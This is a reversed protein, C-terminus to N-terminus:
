RGKEYNPSEILLNMEDFFKIFNGFKKEENEINEIM